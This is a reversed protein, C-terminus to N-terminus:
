TVILTQVVWARASSAASATDELGWDQGLYGGDGGAAFAMDLAPPKRQASPQATVKAALTATATTTAAAGSGAAKLWLGADVFGLSLEVGTEAHDNVGTVLACGAYRGAAATALPVLTPLTGEPSGAPLYAVHVNATTHLADYYADEGAAGAAPWTDGDQDTVSLLLFRTPVAAPLTEFTGHIASADPYTGPDPTLTITASPPASGADPTPPATNDALLPAAATGPRTYWLPLFVMLFVVACLASLFVWRRWGPGLWASQAARFSWGAPAASKHLVQNERMRTYYSPVWTSSSATTAM